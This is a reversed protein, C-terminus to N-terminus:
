PKSTENRDAGLGPNAQIVKIAVGREIVPDIAKYVLGMAGQGLVDIVQYRGFKDPLSM